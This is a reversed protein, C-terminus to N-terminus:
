NSTKQLSELFWSFAKDVNNGLLVSVPYVAWDVDEFSALEFAEIINEASLCDPKDQKNALILFSRMKLESHNLLNTLEEKATQLQDRSSCDVM